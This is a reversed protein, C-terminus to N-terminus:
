HINKLLYNKHYVETGSQASNNTTDEIFLINRIYTYLMVYNSDEKEISGSLIIPITDPNLRLQELCFLIYYIFDESTKFLFSNCLLLKGEELIIVDLQEEQVNLYMKTGQSHKASPLIDMLFVSVAHYYQFSGFKEFFYNNINVYPIYVVVLGYSEIQDFAIFDNSLIKSNFKLYESVKTEDFLVSPVTTYTNNSYLVVVEVFKLQLEKNESIVTDIELLLDEATVSSGINSETFYVIDDTELDKVLFSLGTLSVQVSLRHHINKSINSTKQQTMYNQGTVV